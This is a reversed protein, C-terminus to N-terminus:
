FVKLISGAAIISWMTILFITATHSDTYKIVFPTYSGGIMIFISIHDWIRLVRKLDKQQVAHYITSMSYVMLMAFGFVAVGWITSVSKQELAYFVMLPVAVISFLIGLGHTIYNAKEESLTQERRLKSM